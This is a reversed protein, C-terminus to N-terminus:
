PNLIQAKPTLPKPNLNKKKVGRVKVDAHSCPTPDLNDPM